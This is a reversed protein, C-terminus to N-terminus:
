LFLRHPCLCASRLWSLVADARGLALSLLILGTAGAFTWAAEWHLFALHVPCSLAARDCEPLPAAESEPAAGCRGDVIETPTLVM